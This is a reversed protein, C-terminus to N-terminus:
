IGIEKTIYEKGFLDSHKLGLAGAERFYIRKTEPFNNKNKMFQEAEDQSSFVKPYNIDLVYKPDNEKERLKALDSNPNSDYIPYKITVCFLRNKVEISQEHLCKVVYDMLIPNRKLDRLSSLVQNPFDRDFQESIIKDKQQELADDLFPEPIM